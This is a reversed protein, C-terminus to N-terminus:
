SSVVNQREQGKVEAERDGWRGLKNQQKPFKFDGRWRYGGCCDAQVPNYLPILAQMFVDQHDRTRLFHTPHSPGWMCRQWGLTQPGAHLLGLGRLGGETSRSGWGARGARTGPVHEM